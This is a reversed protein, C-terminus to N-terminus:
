KACPLRSFRGRADQDAPSPKGYIKKNAWFKGALEFGDQDAFPNAPFKKRPSFSVPWNLFLVLV